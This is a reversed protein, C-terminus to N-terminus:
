TINLTFFMVGVIWILLAPGYSLAVIKLGTFPKKISITKNILYVLTIWYAVEFLNLTQLPYIYWPDVSTVDVMNLLSLPYYSQIDELVYDSKFFYFWLLKIVSVSLFIFEAKLAISWLKNHSIDEDVIFSGIRLVVAILQTKFYILMPIAIYGIIQWMRINEFIKNTQEVNLQRVLSEYVLGNFNLAYKFFESLFFTLFCLALFYTTNKM